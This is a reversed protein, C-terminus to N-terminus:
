RGDLSDHQPQIGNPGSSGVRPTRLFSVIQWLQQEPLHAFSPMGRHLSGNRLVWFLAGPAAQFVGTRNLAPAKGQGERKAGHCAACERAYLKAGALRADPDREFPNSKSVYKAPAEELLSRGRAWAAAGLVVYISAKRFRKM